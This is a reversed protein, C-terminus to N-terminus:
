SNDNRAGRQLAESLDALQRLVAPDPLPLQLSQKGSHPDTVILTSQAPDRLSLAIQGLWSGAAQLLPALAAVLPDPHNTASVTTAPTDITGSSAVNPSADAVQASADRPPDSPEIPDAPASPALSDVVQESQAHAATPEVVAEVGEMFQRLQGRDLLVESAGGDLVGAFVARKFGILARIREEISDTCILNIVEVPRQQGMRHVRGIRQELVAPNWPPDVNVVLSAAEQLNLGVGGADTSLFVRCNPDNRFREVHADRQKADLSGHFRVYSVGIADLGRALLEQTALWSSFVVVKSDPDALREELWLLLEPIKHGHDSHPDLLFTSVCVQRMKQLCARLRNQDADSLFGQRRWKHVLKALQEQYADHIDRQQATLPLLIQQDRRAPLQQLVDAKRRRIMIPALTTSIQDLHQYGVVRGREDRLQHQHLFRWTPGLRHRDVMQVVSLLEEIRNELPTGTLVIAFRSDLRKVCRAARTNWNKIRQAEDLILVEPAWAHVLAEDRHLSDYSIIKCGIPAALQGAREPASGEIVQAQIGAFRKLERAWQHKLSTPCIILSRQVGALRQWLRLAGIAQVTKGLGMEDAILARGARAAFWIGACQYPLAPLALLQTLGPDAAGQPYAASLVRAFAADSAQRQVWRYVDQSIRLSHGAQRALDMWRDLDAADTLGLTCLNDHVQLPGTIKALLAQRLPSPAHDALRLRLTRQTGYSVWIESYPPRYNPQLMTLAGSKPLLRHLVFEIHKCTGLENTQFDACTCRNMGLAHGRITVQYEGGSDPNRVRFDSLYKQEGLNEFEFSQRAGFQRRLSVQWDSLAMGEPPRNRSLPPEKPSLRAPRKTRSQAASM